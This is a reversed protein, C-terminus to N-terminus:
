FSFYPISIIPTAELHMGHQFLTLLDTYTSLILNVYLQEVDLSSGNTCVVGNFRGPHQKPSSHNAGALTLSSFMIGTLMHLNVEPGASLIDSRAGMKNVLIM